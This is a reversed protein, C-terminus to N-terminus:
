VHCLSTHLQYKQTYNHSESAVEFTRFNNGVLGLRGHGLYELLSNGHAMWGVESVFIKANLYMCGFRPIWKCCVNIYWCKYISLQYIKVRLQSGTKIPAHIDSIITHTHTHKHRYTCGILYVRAYAQRQASIIAAIVHKDSNKTLLISSTYTRCVTYNLRKKDRPSKSVTTIDRSCFSTLYRVIYKHTYLWIFGEQNKSEGNTLIQTEHRHGFFKKIQIPIPIIKKYM